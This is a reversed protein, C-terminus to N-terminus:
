RSPANRYESRVLIQGIQRIEQVGLVKGWFLLIIYILIAVLGMLAPPNSTLGLVGLVGLAVFGLLVIRGYRAVALVSALPFQLYTIVAACGQALAIAVAAGLSGLHPVIVAAIILFTTLTGVAVALYRRPKKNVVAM